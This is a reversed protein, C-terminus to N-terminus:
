LTLNTGVEYANANNGGDTSEVDSTGSAAYKTSEMVADIEFQLSANTAYSYFYTANNVPDVPETGLPSGASIASFNIPIWGSGTVGGAAVATTTSVTAATMRGGCGSAVPTSVSSGYCKGATGMVPSIQDALYLAIASKLTSLDSIRQSDRAQALMQAPNLTLIVFVALIAIISVVVLLEILTFGKQKQQM